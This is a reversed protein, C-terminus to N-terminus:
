QRDKEPSGGPETDPEPEIKTSDPDPVQSEDFEAKAFPHPSHIEAGLDDGATQMTKGRMAGSVAAEMMLEAFNRTAHDLTTTAARIAQLDGTAKTAILHQRAAEITSREHEPLQQWAPSSPAKEVAALITDAEIRAEIVQRAEFDTEANDFSDLIMSEVQEDTLGYTPKVEIQAETGSRQERATM